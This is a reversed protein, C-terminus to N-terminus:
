GRWRLPKPRKAARGRAKAGAYAHVDQMAYGTGSKRMAEDARAADDLFSMHREAADVHEALAQVMLAHASGGARRALKEIRVKLSRPLKLSTATVSM